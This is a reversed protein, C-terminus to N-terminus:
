NEPIPKPEDGLWERKDYFTSVAGAAQGRRSNSLHAYREAKRINCHGLIEKIAYRTMGSIAVSSAFFHRLDHLVMLSEIAVKM